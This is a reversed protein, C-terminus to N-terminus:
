YLSLPLLSPVTVTGKKVIITKVDDSLYFSNYSDLFIVLSPYSRFLECNVVSIFIECLSANHIFSLIMASKKTHIAITAAAPHMPNGVAPKSGDDVDCSILLPRKCDSDLIAYAPSADERGIGVLAGDWDPKPM